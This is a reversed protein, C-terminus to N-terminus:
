KKTCSNKQIQASKVSSDQLIFRRIDDYTVSHESGKNILIERIQEHDTEDVYTYPIDELNLKSLFTDYLLEDLYLLDYRKYAKEHDSCYV